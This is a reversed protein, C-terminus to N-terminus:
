EKLQLWIRVKKGEYGVTSTSEFIMEKKKAKLVQYKGSYRYCQIESLDTVFDASDVGNIRLLQFTKGKDQFQWTIQAFESGTVWRGACTDSYIDADYFELYPIISDNIEDVSLEKVNWIGIVDKEKTMLRRSFRKEKNCSFLIM